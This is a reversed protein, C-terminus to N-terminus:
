PTVTCYIVVDNFDNDCQSETRNTDEFSILVKNEPTYNLLVAHRKLNPDVEPNLVDDTCFHVVNNDLQRTSLNWGNEMILFGVTTGPDFRGILAKDGPHLPTQNGANPFVYTIIKIDDATKPPQSTPYTYFAISNTLGAGESVFTVFVNSQQTVVIDAIAASTFLAPNKITLNKADPLATDIFTLLAPSITDSNTLYDPKGTSDYTGLIQYSTSTFEVPRTVVAKKCANLMFLIALLPLCIKTKM